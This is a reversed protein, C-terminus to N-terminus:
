ANTMKSRPRRLYKIVSALSGVLGLAMGAVAIATAGRTFIQQDYFLPVNYQHQVFNKLMDYCAILTGLAAASGLLGYIIGEALFPLAVTIPTAGVLSMIHIEKRRAYLTLEITHHIIILSLLALVLGSILGIRNVGQRMTELATTEEKPENVKEVESWGRIEEALGAIASVDTPQVKVVDPLPNRALDKVLEPHKQRMDLWFPSKERPVFTALLVGDMEKIQKFAAWAEKRPTEPQFFVVMDVREMTKRVAFDANLLALGVMGAVFMAAAVCVSAAFAMAPHRRLSHFTETIFFEFRSIM